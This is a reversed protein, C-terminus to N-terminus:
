GNVLGSVSFRIQVCTFVQPFSAISVVDDGVLIIADLIGININGSEWHFNQNKNIMNLLVISEQSGVPPSVGVM